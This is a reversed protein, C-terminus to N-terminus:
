TTRGTITILRQDIQHVSNHLLLLNCVPGVLLAPAWTRERGRLKQQRNIIIALIWLRGILGSLTPVLTILLSIRFKAETAPFCCVFSDRTIVPAVVFFQNPFKEM